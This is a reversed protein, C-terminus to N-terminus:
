RGTIFADTHEETIEMDKTEKEQEIASAPIEHLFPQM